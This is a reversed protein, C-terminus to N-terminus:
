HKKPPKKNQNPSSKQSKSSHVEKRSVQSVQKSSQKMDPRHSSSYKSDVVRNKQPSEKVAQKRSVEPPSSKHSYSKSPEHSKSSYRNSYSVPAKSKSSKSSYKVPAESKKSSQKSVMNKPIQQVNSKHSSSSSKSNSSPKTILKKGSYKTTVERNSNPSPKVVKSNKTEIVRDNHSSQKVEKLNRTNLVQNDATRQKQVRTLERVVTTERNAPVIMKVRHRDAEIARERVSVVQIPRGAFREFDRRELRANRVQVAGREFLPRVRDGRYYVRSYDNYGFHNRDIFFWANVNNYSPAPYIPSWGLYGDGYAWSVRSPYYDYGPVWLWGYAADFVWHGYHYTAWGYPEPSDWMPGYSTYVWHGETYPAWGASVQPRWCNGCSSYNVWTGYPALADHFSFSFSVNSYAHSTGSVGITGVLLLFMILFIKKMDLVEAFVLM